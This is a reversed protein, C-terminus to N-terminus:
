IKNKRIAGEVRKRFRNLMVTPVEFDCQLKLTTKSMELVQLTLSERNLILTMDKNMDKIDYTLSLIVEDLEWNTDMGNFRLAYEEIALLYFVKERIVFNFKHQQEGDKCLLAKTKPEQFDSPEIAEDFMDLDCAQGSGCVYWFSPPYYNLKAMSSAPLLNSLLLITLVRIVNTLM